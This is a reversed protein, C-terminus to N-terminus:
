AGDAKVVFTQNVSPGSVTLTYGNANTPGFVFGHGETDRVIERIIDNSATANDVFIYSDIWTQISDVTHAM